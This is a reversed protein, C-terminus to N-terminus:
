KRSSVLSVKNCVKCSLNLRILACAQQFFAAVEIFTFINISSISMLKTYQVKLIFLDIFLHICEKFYM